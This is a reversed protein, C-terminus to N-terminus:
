STIPHLTIRSGTWGISHSGLLLSALDSTRREDTIFEVIGRLFAAQEGTLNDVRLHVRSDRCQRAALCRLELREWSSRLSPDTDVLDQVRREASVVDTRHRGWMYGVQSHSLRWVKRCLAMAVLRATVVPEFRRPGLLDAVAVDFEDAVMQILVNPPMASM